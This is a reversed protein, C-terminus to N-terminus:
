ELFLSVRQGDPNTDFKILVKNSWQTMEAEYNEGAAPNARQEREVEPM